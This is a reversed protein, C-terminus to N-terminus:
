YQCLVQLIHVCPVTTPLFLFLCCRTCVLVGQSCLLFASDYGGEGSLRPWWADLFDGLRQGAGFDIWLMDLPCYEAPFGGAALLVLLM